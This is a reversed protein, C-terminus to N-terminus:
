VRKELGDMMVRGVLPDGIVLADKSSHREVPREQLLKLTSMSPALRIRKTESLYQGTDPDRLAPFPVQFLPGEPIIVIEDQKILKEVDNIIRQHLKELSNLVTSSDSHESTKSSKGRSACSHCRGTSEQEKCTKNENFEDMLGLSRDECGVIERVKMNEFAGHVLQDLCRDCGKFNQLAFEFHDGEQILFTCLEELSTSYYLLAYKRSSVLAQIDAYQVTEQSKEIKMGYKLLLIDKLARARYGDALLLAEEEKGTDVLVKFLLKYSQKHKEVLAIKFQDNEGVHDFLLEFCELSKRISDEAKKIQGLKYYIEGLGFHCQAVLHKNGMKQAADFVELYVKMGEDYQGQLM